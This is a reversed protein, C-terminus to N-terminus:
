IDDFISRKYTMYDNSKISDSLMDSLLNEDEKRREIARSFDTERDHCVKDYLVSSSLTHREACMSEAMYVMMRKTLDVNKDISRLKIELMKEKKLFDHSYADIIKRVAETHTKVNNRKMYNEIQQRTNDDIYVNKRIKKEEERDNWM